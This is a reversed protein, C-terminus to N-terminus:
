IVAKSKNARVQLPLDNTNFMDSHRMTAFIRGKWYANIEINDMFLYYFSLYTQEQIDWLRNVNIQERLFLVFNSAYSVVNRHTKFIM